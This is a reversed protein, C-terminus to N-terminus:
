STRRRLGALCLAGIALLGLQTPEAVATAETERLWSGPVDTVSAVDGLVVCLGRPIGDPRCEALSGTDQIAPSGIFLGGPDNIAAIFIDQGNPAKLTKTQQVIIAWREFQGAADTQVAFITTLDPGLDAQTLTSRGDSFSFALVENSLDAFTSSLALPNALTFSGSVKMSTDFTGAPLPTSDDVQTFNQGTYFYTTAAAAAPSQIAASLVTSLAASLAIARLLESRNM